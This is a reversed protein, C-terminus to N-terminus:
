KEPSDNDALLETTLASLLAVPTPSTLFLTPLTDPSAHSHITLRGDHSLNYMTDTYFSIHDRFAEDPDKARFIARLDASTTVAIDAAEFNELIAPMLHTINRVRAPEFDPVYIVKANRERAYRVIDFLRTRARPDLAYNGGFLLIDGPNIRPWVVTFGSDHYAGYRSSKGDSFLLHLQTAGGTYRDVSETDVGADNLYRLIIDGVPDSAIESVLSVQQASAAIAAAANLLVGHPASAVPATGDFTIQLACEGIIIIKRM